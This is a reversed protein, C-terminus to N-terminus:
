HANQKEVRGDQGIKVWFITLSFIHKLERSLDLPMVSSNDCAVSSAEDIKSEVSCIWDKRKRKKSRLQGGIFRFLSKRKLAMGHMKEFRTQLVIELTETRTMMYSYISLFIFECSQHGRHIISNLQWLCLTLRYLISPSRLYRVCPCVCVCVSLYVEM